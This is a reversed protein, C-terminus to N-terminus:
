VMLCPLFRVLISCQDIQTIANLSCNELFEFHSTDDGVLSISSINLDLNGTNIVGVIIEEGNNGIGADYIAVDGFDYETASVVIKPAFETDSVGRVSFM